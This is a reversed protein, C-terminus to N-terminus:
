SSWKEFIDVYEIEITFTAGSAQESVLIHFDAASSSPLDTTTHELTDNVFYKVSSGDFRCELVYPMNASYSMLTVLDGDPELAYITTDDLTFGFSGACNIVLDVEPWSGTNTVTIKAKFSPNRDTHLINNETAVVIEGDTGTASITIRGVGVDVSTTGSTTVDYGDISEGTLRYHKHYRYSALPEQPIWESGNSYFTKGANVGSTVYVYKGTYSSASPLSSVTEISKKSSGDSIDDLDGNM